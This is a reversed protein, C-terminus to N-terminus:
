VEGAKRIVVEPMFVPKKEFFPGQINKTHIYEIM